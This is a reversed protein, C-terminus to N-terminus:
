LLELADTDEGLAQHLAKKARQNWTQVTSVKKHLIAAIEKLTYGEYYHLYVVTRYSPPLRRVEDLLDNEPRRPAALPPADGTLVSRRFWASRRHNKCMNVAVRIFWAKEHEPETFSPRKEAWRLFVDQAIDQADEKRRVEHLAIRLLLGGYARVVRQAEDAGVIDGMIERIILVM